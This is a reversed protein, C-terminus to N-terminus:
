KDEETKTLEEYKKLLYDATRVAGEGAYAWTEEKVQRRGEAYQADSLCTDILEKLHEM